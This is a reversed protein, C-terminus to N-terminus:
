KATLHLETHLSILNQIKDNNLQTISYDFNLIAGILVQPPKTKTRFSKYFSRVKDSMGKTKVQDVRRRSHIKLAKFYALILSLQIRLLKQRCLLHLVFM